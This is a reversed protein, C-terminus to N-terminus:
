KENSIMPYIHTISTYYESYCTIIYCILYCLYFLFLCYVGSIFWKYKIIYQLLTYGQPIFICLFDNIRLFNLNLIYDIMAYTYKSSVLCM